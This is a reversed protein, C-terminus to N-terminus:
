KYRSSRTMKQLYNFLTFQLGAHNVLLQSEIMQFLHVSTIPSDHQVRHTRLVAALVYLRVTGADDDDHENIILVTVFQM